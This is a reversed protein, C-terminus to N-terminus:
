LAPARHPPSRAPARKSGPRERDGRDGLRPRRAEERM